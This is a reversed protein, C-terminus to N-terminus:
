RSAPRVPVAWAVLEVQLSGPPRQDAPRGGYRQFIKQLEAAVGALEAPTLWASVQTAFGAPGKGPVPPPEVLRWPRKRGPGGGAETVFGYRALQRLHWSCNPPSEGVQEALETATATGAAALARLLRQRVPHALARLALLHDM